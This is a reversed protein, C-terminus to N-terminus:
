TSSSLRTHFHSIVPMQRGKGQEEEGRSKRRSGGGGSRSEGSERWKLGLQVKGEGGRTNQRLLPRRRRVSRAKTATALTHTHTHSPKGGERDGQGWGLALAWVAPGQKVM